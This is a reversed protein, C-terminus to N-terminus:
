WNDEAPVLFLKGTSIDCTIFPVLCVVRINKWSAHKGQYRCRKNQLFTLKAPCEFWFYNESFECSFIRFMRM